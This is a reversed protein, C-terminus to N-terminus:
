GLEGTSSSQWPKIHQLHLSHTHYGSINVFYIGIVKVLISQSFYVHSHWNNQLFIDNRM